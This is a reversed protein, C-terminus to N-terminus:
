PNLDWLRWAVWQKRTLGIPESSMRSAESEIPDIIEGNTAEQVSEVEGVAESVPLEEEKTELGSFILFKNM